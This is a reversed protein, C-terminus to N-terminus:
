THSKRGLAFAFAAYTSAAVVVCLASLYRSAGFGNVLAAFIGYGALLLTAIQVIVLLSLIARGRLEFWLFAFVLFTAFLAVVIYNHCPNSGTTDKCAIPVLIPFLLVGYALFVFIVASINLIRLGPHERYYRLRLM